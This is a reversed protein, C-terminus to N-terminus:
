LNHLIFWSLGIVIPNTPSSIVNFAVKNTHTDIIFDLAEIEHMMPGLSLSRGDIVEMTIPTNNKMIIMKHRQMLEKDIFCAFASYDFLAENEM